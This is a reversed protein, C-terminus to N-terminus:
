PAMDPPTMGRVFRLPGSDGSRPSLCSLGGTTSLVRPRVSRRGNAFSTLPSLSESSVPPRRGGGRLRSAGGLAPSSNLQIGLYEDVKKHSEVIARNSVRLSPRRAKLHQEPSNLKAAFQPSSTSPPRNLPFDAGKGTHCTSNHFSVTTYPLSTSRSVSASGIPRRAKGRDRRAM